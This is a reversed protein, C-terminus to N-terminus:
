LVDDEELDVPSDAGEIAPSYDRTRIGVVEFGIKPWVYL